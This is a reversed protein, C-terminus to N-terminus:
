VLKACTQQACEATELKDLVVNPSRTNHNSSEKLCECLVDSFQKVKKKGM